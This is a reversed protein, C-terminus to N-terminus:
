GNLSTIGGWVGEGGEIKGITTAGYNSTGHGRDTQNGALPTTWTNQGVTLFFSRSKGAFDSMWFGSTKNLLIGGAENMWRKGTEAVVSAGIWGPVGVVAM